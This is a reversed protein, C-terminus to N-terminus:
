VENIDYIKWITSKLTMHKTLRSSEPFDNYYEELTYESVDKSNPCKKALEYMSIVKDGVIHLIGGQDSELVEKIGKALQHAFLYNSYRDVFAKPFPYKEYRIFNSRVIIWDLDSGQVIMEQMAKTFGYYNDPDPYYNEDKPTPDNGNFICPTSMLLFICNPNYELCTEILNLTGIVNSNWALKKNKECKPPSTLAALHIIADPENNNIYDNVQDWNSLELESHTPTLAEPFLKSVERGLRGSSGTILTKM